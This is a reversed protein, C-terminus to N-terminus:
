PNRLWLREKFLSKYEKQSGHLAGLRAGQSSLSPVQPGQSRRGQPGPHSPSATGCLAPAKIVRNDLPDCCPGLRHTPIQELEGARTEVEQKRGPEESGAPPFTCGGNLERASHTPLLPPRALYRAKELYRETRNRSIPSLM